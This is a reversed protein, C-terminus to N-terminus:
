SIGAPSSNSIQLAIHFKNILMKGLLIVCIEWLVAKASDHKLIGPNRRWVKKEKRTLQGICYLMKKIKQNRTDGVSLFHSCVAIKRNGSALYNVIINCEAIISCQIGELPQALM